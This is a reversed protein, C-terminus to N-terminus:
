NKIIEKVTTKNGCNIEVSYIGTKLNSIDITATCTKNQLSKVTQGLSNRVTLKHIPFPSQLTINDSAPVPYVAVQEDADGFIGVEPCEYDFTSLEFFDIIQSKIECPRKRAFSRLNEVREEWYEYSKPYSWRDIQHQIQPAYMEAFSDIQALVHHPEFTNELHFKFRDIFTKKFEANELLKRLLFTSCPSNSWSGGEPDTAHPFYNREPSSRSDFAWSIDLDYVLWRWKSNPLNIKWMKYNNLPWDLNACYIECIYYDICNEIDIQKKVAEYNANVELPNNEIFDILELYSSNDGREKRGCSNVIILEDEDIGFKRKFFHKDHPERINFFGWYEGNFYVHAPNSRQIELDLGSLLSHEFAESFHTKEFDNGGNRLILSKFTGTGTGFFDYEPATGGIEDKFNIKVSKQPYSASGGGRIRLMASSNHICKKDTNFFEVNVNIYRKQQYNGSPWYATWGKLDYTKGPVYIGNEYGFLDTSDAIISFVPFDLLEEADPDIIFTRTYIKSSPQGNRFSRCKLVYATNREKQPAYWIFSDLYDKGSLPTTPIQSIRNNKHATLNLAETFLLSSTDPLTGDLTFYVSDENQSSVSLHIMETYIRSQHSFSLNTTASNDKMPTPFDFLMYNGQESNQTGFSQGFEMPPCNLLSHSYGTSDRLVAPEGESSLKFNTHIEGNVLTDKGSAFVLLYGYPPIVADPLAFKFPDQLNDSIFFGKCSQASSNPNFLEIWDAYDGEFDVIDASGKASAETIILTQSFLVEKMLLFFFATLISKLTM